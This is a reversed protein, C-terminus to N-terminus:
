CYLPMSLRVLTQRHAQLQLKQTSCAADALIHQTLERVKYEAGESVLTGWDMLRLAQRLSLRDAQVWLWISRTTAEDRVANLHFRAQVACHDFNGVTRLQHCEVAEDQKEAIVPDLTRGKVHTVHTPFSVCDTLGQVDLLSEYAFQHHNLDGM